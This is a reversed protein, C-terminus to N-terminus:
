NGAQAQPVLVVQGTSVTSDSMGNLAMLEVVVEDVPKGASKMDEAITWLSQGPEVTVEVTAVPEPQQAFLGGVLAGGGVAVMLMLLGALLNRLLPQVSVQVAPSSVAKPLPRAANSARYNSVSASNGASTLVTSATRKPTTSVAEVSTAPCGDKVIYLHSRARKQSANKGDLTQLRLADAGERPSTYHHQGRNPAIQLASM